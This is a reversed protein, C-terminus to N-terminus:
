AAESRETEPPVAGTSHLHHLQLAVNARPEKTRGQKLDSIAGISAGTAKALATLSWGLGELELVKNQWTTM